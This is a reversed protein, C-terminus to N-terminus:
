LIAPHQRLPALPVGFSFMVSYAVAPASACNNTQMINIVACHASSPPALMSEFAFKLISYLYQKCVRVQQQDAHHQHCRLTSLQTTGSLCYVAAGDCDQHSDAAAPQAAACLRRQFPRCLFTHLHLLPLLM